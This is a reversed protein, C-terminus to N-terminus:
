NRKIVRGIDLKFSPSGRTGSIRIPLVTGAGDRKFLPDVPKLLVHKLGTAMQSVTADLKATGTFDIKGSPLEYQGDLSVHAGPVEFRLQPLRLMGNTLRFQGGFKAFVDNNDTDGPEGQAHHSLSAIKAQVEASTFRVGDLAFAGDLQLRQVVPTEGPPIKVKTDFAIKGTMPPKPGKIALRLFDELPTGKASAQLDIEKHTELANREISGQIEFAAKGLLARVPHLDTNGNTGDVTAAFETRLHMPRDGTTLAFDPVDTTGQVDIRDLEGHYNGQSSLTGRIGKFVSLDADQFTYRGSVPTGGPEDSDWPGFQGDSHILGPPKANDLLAHFIMPVGKGVTHLTLQRIDFTLPLKKPDSPLTQLTTGDAVVEELVFSVAASSNGGAERPQASKPPLHLQLGELTLKRIRRPYRFFGVFRAEITFRRIEIMPPLDKRGGWRLVLNDGTAHVLPFLSIQFNGLEVESKYREQLTSIVYQRAVPQFRVIVIWVIAALTVFVGAAIWLIVRVPRSLTV